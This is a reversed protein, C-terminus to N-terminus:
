RSRNVKRKAVVIEILFIFFALLLKFGLIIFLLIVHDIGIPDTTKIETYTKYDSNRVLVKGNMGAETLKLMSLLFFVM